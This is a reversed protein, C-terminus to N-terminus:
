PRRRLLLLLGAAVIAALSAGLRPDAQSCTVGLTDGGGDDDEEIYCDDDYEDPVGDCDNDIGNECIESAGPNIQPNNDDCDMGSYGGPYGDLDVDDLDYGNCDQDIGDYPVEPAGPHVNPDYDNCDVDCGSFGDFDYDVGEDVDGDCDNDIGDCEEDAGPNITPDNDNCDGDSPSYGDGDEDSVVEGVISWSVLDCCDGPIIADLTQLEWIGALEMGDFESLSGPSPLFTGVVTGTAPYTDVAEDDFTANIEATSTDGVGDYVQVTVKNHVLYIDLDDAYPSSIYVVLDLDVIPGEKTAELTVVTAPNTDCCTAAPGDFQFPDAGATSVGGLALLLGFWLVSANRRSDDFRRDGHQFIFM